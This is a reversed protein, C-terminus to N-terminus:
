IPFGEMLIRDNGAVETLASVSSGIYVGLLTDFSSGATSITVTGASPATWSWWVSTYGYMDAHYPEGVEWTAGDNSGTVTIDTGSIVIRDALMDNAPQARSFSAGLGVVVTVPLAFRCLMSLGTPMSRVLANALVAIPDTNETTKM